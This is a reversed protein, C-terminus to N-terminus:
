RLYAFAEADLENAWATLFLVKKAVRRLSM